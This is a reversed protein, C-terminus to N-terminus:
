GRPLSGRMFHFFAAMGRRPEFYPLELPRNRMADHAAMAALGTLRRLFKPPKTPPLDRVVARAADLLFMRSPIDSCHRAGDVLSWLSGAAEGDGPDGGLLRTGIGFLIRGRHMLGEAVPERWPFPELLPMWADELASLELGSIGRPLLESTVGQLRPEAPVEGGRDLEELRERWWAM